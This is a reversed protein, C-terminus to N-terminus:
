IMERKYNLTIESLTECIFSTAFPLKPSAYRLRKDDVTILLQSVNMVEDGKYKELLFSSLTFPYLFLHFIYSVM